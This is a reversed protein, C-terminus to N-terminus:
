PCALIKVDVTNSIRSARSVEGAFMHYASLLTVLSSLTRWSIMIRGAGDTGGSRPESSLRPMRWRRCVVIDTEEAFAAAIGLGGHYCQASMAKHTWESLPQGTCLHYFEQDAKAQVEKITELVQDGEIWGVKLSLGKKQIVSKLASYLGQTDASGANTAVKIGHRTIDPLV